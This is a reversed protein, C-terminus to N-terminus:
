KTCTSDNPFKKCFREGANGNTFKSSDTQKSNTLSESATKERIRSREATKEREVVESEAVNADIASNSIKLEGEIVKEQTKEIQYDIYCSRVFLVSGTMLAIVLLSLGLRIWFTYPALATKIAKFM